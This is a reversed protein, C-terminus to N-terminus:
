SGSMTPQRDTDWPLLCTSVVCTRIISARNMESSSRRNNHKRGKKLAPWTEPHWHAIAVEDRRRARPMLKQPSWRITKRLQGVHALDSLLGFRVWALDSLLGFRVWSVEALRKRTWLQGRFGYAAPGRHLLNLLRALQEPALRRPVGPPPRHRLAQSGDNRAWGLWQSLAFASVGLAETIQRQPWGKQLLHCAQLRRAEKWNHPAPKM